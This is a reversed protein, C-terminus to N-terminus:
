PGTHGAGMKEAAIIDELEVIYKVIAEFAGDTLADLPYKRTKQCVSLIEAIKKNGVKGVLKTLYETM